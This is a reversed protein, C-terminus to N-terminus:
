FWLYRSAIFILETFYKCTIKWGDRTAPNLLCEAMDGETLGQGHVDKEWDELWQLFSIVYQSNVYIRRKYFFDFSTVFLMLQSAFNHLYAFICRQLVMGYLKPFAEIVITMSYASVIASHWWCFLYSNTVYHWLEIRNPTQVSLSIVNHNTM